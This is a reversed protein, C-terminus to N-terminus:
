DLLHRPQAGGAPAQSSGLHGRIVGSSGLNPADDAPAGDGLVGGRAGEGGAEVVRHAVEDEVLLLDPDLEGVPEAELAHVVLAEPEAVGGRVQVRGAVRVVGRRDEAAAVAAARAM